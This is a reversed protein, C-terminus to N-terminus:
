RSSRTACRSHAADSGSKRLHRRHPHAPAPRQAIEVVWTQAEFTEIRLPHKQLENKM